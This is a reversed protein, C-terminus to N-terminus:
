MNGYYSCYRSFVKCCGIYLCVMWVVVCLYDVMEWVKVWL